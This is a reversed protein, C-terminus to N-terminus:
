FFDSSTSNSAAADGEIDLFDSDNVDDSQTLNLEPSNETNRPSSPTSDQSMLESFGSEQSDPKRKPEHMSTLAKSTSAAMYKRKRDM